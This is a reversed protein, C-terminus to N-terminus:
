EDHALRRGRTDIAMNAIRDAGPNKERPIHVFTVNPLRSSLDAAKSFLPLIEPHRVRYIGTMQKVLLESDMRVIVSQPEYRAAAELGTILAHYEAQNNTTVGLFKGITEVNRGQEDKIVVGAGALGPNGRSAGDTEVILKQHPTM